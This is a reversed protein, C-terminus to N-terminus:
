LPRLFPRRPDRSCTVRIDPPQRPATAPVAMAATPASRTDPHPAADAGPAGGPEDASALGPRCDAEDGVGAVLPGAVGAARAAAGL